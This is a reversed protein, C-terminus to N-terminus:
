LIKKFKPPEGGGIILGLDFCLSGNGNVQAWSRSQKKRLITGLEGLLDIAFGALTM